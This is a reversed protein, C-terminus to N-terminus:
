SHYSFCQFSASSTVSATMAHSRAACSPTCRREVDVGLCQLLEEAAVFQAGRSHSSVSERINGTARGSGSPPRSPASRLDGALVASGEEAVANSEALGEDSEHQDLAEDQVLALPHDQEGRLRGLVAHPVGCRRLHSGWMPPMPPPDIEAIERDEAVGIQSSAPVERLPELRMASSASTTTM